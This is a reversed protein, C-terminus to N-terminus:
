PRSGCTTSNIDETAVGIALCRSHLSNLPATVQMKRLNNEEELPDRICMWM